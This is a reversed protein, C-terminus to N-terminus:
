QVEFEISCLLVFDSSRPSIYTVTLKIEIILDIMGYCQSMIAFYSMKDVHIFCEEFYLYFDWSWLIYTM